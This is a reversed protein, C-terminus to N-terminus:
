ASQHDSILILPFQLFVSLTSKRGVLTATSFMEGTEKGSCGSHSKWFGSCIRARGHKTNRGPQTLPGTKHLFHAYIKQPLFITCMRSHNPKQTNKNCFGLVFPLLYQRLKKKSEFSRVKIGADIHPGKMYEYMEVNILLSLGNASGPFLHKFM